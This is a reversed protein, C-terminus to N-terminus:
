IHSMMSPPWAARLANLVAAVDIIEQAVAGGVPTLWGMAALCMGIASLGMGGLASQLAISRMRRGIHLFEDVRKLTNEMVVVDAAEATVDSTGGIAIGVTAAMMAPADNIGDGVYLTKTKRTADQVISLKEEPSKQSLVESIGVQDALYRVESERDGSVIMVRQIGHYQALHEVFARSDARPADHMRYAAAYKGDIVLICELGESSPPLQDLGKVQDANLKRRSTVLISHGDVIGSLGKGPAESVQTAQLPRMGEQEAAATIAHALPHKSYRELSSVLELVRQRSFEPAVVQETLTPEGYTLTGTKDFIATRCQVIQELAIPSKVIIARRACLSISGLIAIPIALLLPCPTAIVLVSLFRIPDGSWWWALGAIALALPTFWTGIQDGLRRMAPRKQESERMVDMIKAYRSDAAPRTARITLVTDGNIAGSIVDSGVTKTIKFPEGTLYSEDMVGHGSIVYGDVPCVEHPFVVIEDGAIIV